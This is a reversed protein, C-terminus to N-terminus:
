IGGLDRKYPRVGAKDWTHKGGKEAGVKPYVSEERQSVHTLSDKPRLVKCKSHRRNPFTERM